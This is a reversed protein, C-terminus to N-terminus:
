FIPAPVLSNAIISSNNAVFTRSPAPSVAGACPNTKLHLTNYIVFFLNEKVVGILFNFKM